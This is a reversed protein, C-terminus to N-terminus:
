EPVTSYGHDRVTGALVQNPNQRTPDAERLVTIQDDLDVM